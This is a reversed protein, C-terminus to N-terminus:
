YQSVQISVENLLFYLTPEYLDLNLKDLFSLHNALQMMRLLDFLLLIISIDFNISSLAALLSFSSSKTTFFCSIM